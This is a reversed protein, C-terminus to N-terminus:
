DERQRERWLRRALDALRKRMEDSAAPAGEERVTYGRIVSPGAAPREQLREELWVLADEPSAVQCECGLEGAKAVLRVLAARVADEAHACVVITLGDRACKQLNAFEHEADTTIGIEVGIRM